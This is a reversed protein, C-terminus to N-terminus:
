KVQANLKATATNVSQTFIAILESNESLLGPFKESKVYQRSLLVRLCISSERLEKLAVRMKHIFDKRSEAAQAEGYLLAPATGSRMLQSGLHKCSPNEPLQEVFDLITASFRILREELDYKMNNVTEQLM